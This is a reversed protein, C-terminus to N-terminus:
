DKGCGREKFQPPWAPPLDGKRSIRFDCQGCGWGLTKTRQLGLGCARFMVYDLNCLYPTLEAAGMARMFKDIGCESFNLGIDFDIGNGEVVDFVWDGAYRRQQSLEARAKMKLIGQRNYKRLAAWRRIFYPIRNLQKEIGLHMLEGTEELTGGHAQIAQYLALAYGSQVLNTTLPNAKGGIYPFQPILEAYAEQVQMLIQQATQSSYRQALESLMPQAYKNLDKLMRDKQSIYYSTEQVMM